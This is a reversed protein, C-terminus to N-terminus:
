KFDKLAWGVNVICWPSDCLLYKLVANNTLNVETNYLEKLDEQVFPFLL